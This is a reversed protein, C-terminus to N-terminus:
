HQYRSTSITWLLAFSLTLKSARIPGLGIIEEEIEEQPSLDNLIALARYCPENIYDKNNIYIYLENSMAGFAPNNEDIINLAVFSCGKSHFMKTAYGKANEADNEAKFGIKIVSKDDISALVDIDKYLDISLPADSKSKKIKLPQKKAYFDSLAATSFYYIKTSDNQNLESISEEIKAKFQENSSAKKFVFHKSNPLYLPYKSSILHVSHGSMYGAIALASGMLGSSKNTLERIGDLPVSASGASIIIKHQLSESEVAENLFLSYSITSDFNDRLNKLGLAHYLELVCAFPAAMAGKGIEGCALPASKPEILAYGLERLRAMNAKNQMSNYMQTNAAIALLVPASTALACEVIINSTIGNALSAATNITAPAILMLDAAKAYGIHNCPPNGLHEKGLLEADLGDIMESAMKSIIKGADPKTAWDQSARTLVRTHSLAEICLPQIFKTAEESMVVLVRAGLKKLLSIIELAKYCAISASIGLLVTKGRLKPLDKLFIPGFLSDSLSNEEEFAMLLSLLREEISHKSNEAQIDIM